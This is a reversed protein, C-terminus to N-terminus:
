KKKYVLIDDYDQNPIYQVFLNEKTKNRGFFTFSESLEDFNKDVYYRYTKIRRQHNKCKDTCKKTCKPLCDNIFNEHSDSGSVIIVADPNTEFFSPITSLVTNFVIYIDGNNSNINDIITGKDEDYDGFGLNYVTKSDIITVPSYEIAKVITKEGVSAFLYRIKIEAETRETAYIPLTNM